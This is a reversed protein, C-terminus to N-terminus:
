FKSAWRAALPGHRRSPWRKLWGRGVSRTGCYNASCGVPNAEGSHGELDIQEDRQLLKDSTTGAVALVMLSVTKGTGTAGAILGHCNGYRALLHVQQEGKGVLIKDM